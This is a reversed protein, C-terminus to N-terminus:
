QGVCRVSEDGNRASVNINLNGLSHTSVVWAATDIFSYVSSTWFNLDLFRPLVYGMGNAYAHLYDERTPLRWEVSPSSATADILMGGKANIIASGTSTWSVLADATTSASHAGNPTVLGSVEACLSVAARNYSSM